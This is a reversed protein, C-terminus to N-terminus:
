CCDSPYDNVLSVHANSSLPLLFCIFGVSVISSACLFGLTEQNVDFFLRGLHQIWIDRLESNKLSYLFSWELGKEAQSQNIILIWIYPVFFIASLLSSVIYNKLIKIHSFGYVLIIYFGQAIMTLGSLLFTYFSIVVTFTYIGWSMGTNVRIARLLAANSLLTTVVWLSYQRSEQAYIVHFPSVAIFGIMLYTSLRSAFVGTEIFIEQCLWYASPFALLSLLAPLLRSLTPSSGIIHFWINVLIYYLPPHQPDEKVLSKATDIISRTGDPHQYHQLETVSVVSQQSFHQVVEQETYGSARLSTIAEDYWYM